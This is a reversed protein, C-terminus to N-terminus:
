QTVTISLEKISQAQGYVNQNNAVFVVKYVGPKTYVKSVETVPNDSMTKIPIAKDPLVQSLNLARSILWDENDAVNATTSGQISTQAVSSGIGWRVDNNKINVISFLPNPSRNILFLINNKTGDAVTNDVTINTIYWFRQLLVPDSFDAYKFAIYVPKGESAKAFDTIDAVGSNISANSPVTPLNFRNTINVWANSGANAVAASDIIYNAVPTVFNNSILIQLTNQQKTPDTSGQTLRSTFSMTVKGTLSTRNRNEYVNASDGAYYYIYDPNGSLNFRITDGVKYSNKVVSVDFNTLNTVDKKNCSLAFLFVLVTIYIKM